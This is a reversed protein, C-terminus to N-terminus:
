AELKAAAAAAAENFAESTLSAGGVRAVSIEVLAQGVVESEIAADFRQQHSNSYGDSRDYIVEAGSVVGDAVTFTVNVEHEERNPTLYTAVGTVTETAPLAESTAADDSPQADQGGPAPPLGEPTPLEDTSPAESEEDAPRSSEPAGTEEAPAPTGSFFVYSGVGLVAIVILTIIFPM